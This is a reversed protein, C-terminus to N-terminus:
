FICFHDINAAWLLSWDRGGGLNGSALSGIDSCALLLFGRCNEFVFHRGEAMVEWESMSITFGLVLSNIFRVGQGECARHHAAKPAVVRIVCEQVVSEMMELNGSRECEIRIDSKNSFRCNKLALGGKILLKSAQFDCDEIITRDVKGEITVDSFNGTKIVANDLDCHVFSKSFNVKRLWISGRIGIASNLM